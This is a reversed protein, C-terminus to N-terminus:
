DIIINLKNVKKEQLLDTQIGGNWNNLDGKEVLIYYVKPELTDFKVFGKENTVLAKKVPNAEKKFDEENGYLVVTAGEVLSGVDDLVTIKLQTKFLQANVQTISLFTFIVILFALNKM